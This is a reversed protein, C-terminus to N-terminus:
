ALWTPEKHDQGLFSPWFHQAQKPSLNLVEALGQITSPTTHDSIWGARFAVLTVESNLVLTYDPNDPCGHKIGKSTLAKPFEKGVFALTKQKERVVLLRVGLTEM